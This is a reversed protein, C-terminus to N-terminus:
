NEDPVGWDALSCTASDADGVKNGAGTTARVKATNTFTANEPKYKDDSFDHPTGNNGTPPENPASPMYCTDIHLDRYLEVSEGPALTGIDRGDRLGDVQDDTVTVNFLPQTGKNAVRIKPCIEVVLHGDMAMLREGPYKGDCSKYIAVDHPKKIPCQKEMNSWARGNLIVGEPTEVKSNLRNVLNPDAHECGIEFTVAEGKENSSSAPSLVGDFNENRPIWVFGDGHNPIPKPPDVEIGNVSIISCSFNKNHEQIRPYRLEVNGSNRIGSTFVSRYVPQGDPRVAVQSDCKKWFTQEINECSAGLIGMSAYEVNRGAKIAVNIPSAGISTSNFVVRYTTSGGDSVGADLKLVKANPFTVGTSPERDHIDVGGPGSLNRNVLSVLNPEGNATDCIPLEFDIHSPANGQGDDTVRYVFHSRGEIIQPFDGSSSTVAEIITGGDTVDCLFAQKEAGGLDCRGDPNNVGTGSNYGAHAAPSLSTAAVVFTSFILSNHVLSRTM